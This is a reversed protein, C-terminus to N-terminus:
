KYMKFLTDLLITLPLIGSLYPTLFWWIFQSFGLILVRSLSCIQNNAFSYFQAVETCFGWSKIEGYCWVFSVLICTMHRNNVFSECSCLITMLEEYSVSVRGLERRLLQKLLSIEWWVGWRPSTQPNFKEQNSPM